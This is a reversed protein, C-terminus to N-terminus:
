IESNLIPAPQALADNRSEKEAASSIRGLKENSQCRLNAVVEGSFSLRTLENREVRHKMRTTGKGSRIEEKVQGVPKM